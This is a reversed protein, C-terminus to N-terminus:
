VQWDGALLGEDHSFLFRLGESVMGAKVREEVKEQKRDEPKGRECGNDQEQPVRTQGRRPTENENGCSRDGDELDAKVREPHLVAHNAQFLPRRSAESKGSGNRERM